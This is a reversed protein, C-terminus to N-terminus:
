ATTAEVGAAPLRGELRLVLLALQIALQDDSDNVVDLGTMEDIRALRYRITNEHVGLSVASRRVSRSSSFFCELTQLLDGGGPLAPDLLPGLTDRAFRDARRRDTGALFLRGAGLEDATLVCPQTPDGYIVACRTVQQVHEHADAFDEPSRCAASLGAVASGDPAIEDMVMRVVRAASQMATMSEDEPEPLDLIVAIGHEVGAAFAQRGPALKEFAKVVRVASLRASPSPDRQTIMCVTHGDRLALGHFEGRRELDEPEGCALLLDRVLGEAAHSEAEAARREASLELAIVTASQRAVIMDQAGLRSGYEMLVLYGWANARVMIPAVLFRHHLGAAPLPGIVGPRGPELAALAQPVMPDSRFHPDLLRPVPTEQGAPRGTALRRFTADHITCPKRTLEAVATAIERLNAGELVLTTLRDDIAAARRLLTNQQAVTELSTRLESTMQAQAIAIAALNAFTAALQQEAPTFDHPDSANDLFLLGNVEDNLVMPVGLMASIDWAIMTSRVPRPDTKANVILVPQKTELIERTFGDAEIGATLKKIAQDVDHGVEAVQGRFLGTDRDRLYVSCRRIGLLHTIRDAVLHLLADLDGKESILQAIQAFSQVIEPYRSTVDSGSAAAKDVPKAKLGQSPTM